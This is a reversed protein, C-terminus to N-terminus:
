SAVPEQRPDLKLWEFFTSRGPPPDFIEINKERSVLIDDELHLDKSPM